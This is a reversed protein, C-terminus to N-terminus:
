DESDKRFYNIFNIVTKYWKFAALGYGISRLYGNSSDMLSNRAPEVCGAVDNKLGKMSNTLRRREKQKAEQIANLTRYHKM